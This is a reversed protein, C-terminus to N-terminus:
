GVDKELLIFLDACGLLLDARIKSTTPSISLVIDNEYLFRKDEPSLTSRSIPETLVDVTTVSYSHPIGERDWLKIETTSCNKTVPTASGFTNIKLVTSEKEPLRLRHALDISVFSRDAGSDLM